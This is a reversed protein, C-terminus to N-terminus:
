ERGRHSWAAIESRGIVVGGGAAVERLMREALTAVEIEAATAVGLREMTPVLTDTLDALAQLWDRCEKGGGMFTQMRMTPAPLGARVFAEHLRDAMNAETGLLRLTKELWGCCRDYTPAPPLSRLSGLDPEHFAIVGGLRLHRVLERVTAAPDAQFLLVYRGVVADFPREFAMKAPDGQRFSVNRLGRAETRKTAALVAAAAKDTGIVEGTEGVLEATLFAVDGAGSGVDLVRMGAGIGAERFFGRTAPGILREQATLRELERESHGLAYVPGEPGDASPTV